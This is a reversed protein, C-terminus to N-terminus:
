KNLFFSYMYASTMQLSLGCVAVPAQPRTDTPLPQSATLRSQVPNHSQSQPQFSHPQSGLPLDQPSPQELRSVCWVCTRVCVRACMSYTGAM